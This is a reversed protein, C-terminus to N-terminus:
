SPQGITLLVELPRVTAFRIAIQENLWVILGDNHFFVVKPTSM